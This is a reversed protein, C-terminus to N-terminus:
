KDGQIRIKYEVSDENAMLIGRNCILRWELDKNGFDELKVNDLNTRWENCTIEWNNAMIFRCELLGKRRM